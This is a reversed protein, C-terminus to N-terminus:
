APITGGAKAKCHRAWPPACSTAVRSHELLPEDSGLDWTGTQVMESLKLRKNQTPQLRRCLLRRAVMLTEPPPSPSPGAKVWRFVTQYSGDCELLGEM